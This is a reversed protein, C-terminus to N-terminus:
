TLEELLAAARAAGGAAAFSARVRAAAERYRPDDLVEHVAARLAAADARGYRLRIGCGAATVQRAILPQDDRIPAVVM